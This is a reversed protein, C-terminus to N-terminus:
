SWFPEGMWASELESIRQNTLNTKCSGGAIACWSDRYTTWARQSAALGARQPATLRENYLRLLRSLRVDSTRSIPEAASLLTTSLAALEASRARNAREDCEVALQPAISGGSYLRYEFSCTNDRAAIWASQSSRLPVTSRGANTFRELTRAYVTKLQAAAEANRKSWCVQMDVTTGNSCPIAGTGAVLMAATVVWRNM